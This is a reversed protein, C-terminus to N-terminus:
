GKAKRKRYRNELDALAKKNAFQDATNMRDIILRGDLHDTEHQWIRASLDEGELLFPQGTVDCARIRCVRARRVQVHVDPISLCGEESEVSGMLDSLEPNVFVRDDAPEGTPNAVFIRRCVGVQPGALGVGNGAHMLELMRQALDALAQDFVTIPECKKRLRPDPYLVIRAPLTKVPM